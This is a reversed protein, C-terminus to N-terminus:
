STRTLIRPARAATPRSDTPLQDLWVVRAGGSSVNNPAASSMQAVDAPAHAAIASLSAAYAVGLGGVLFLKWETGPLSIRAPARRVPNETM